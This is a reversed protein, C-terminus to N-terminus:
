ADRILPLGVSTWRSGLDGIVIHPYLEGSASVTSGDPQMMQANARAADGLTLDLPQLLRLGSPGIVQDALERVVFGDILRRRLSATPARRGRTLVRAAVAVPARHVLSLRLFVETVLYAVGGPKLVRGIEAAARRIGDPGGFHEISSLSIVADFSEDGFTLERADMDRVELRQAPYPYPACAGPDELFGRVAEREGFEGRGYIDVAVVRGCRNALWFLIPERGAGVDLVAADERLVGAEQLFAATMAYEWAKRHPREASLDPAVESMLPALAPDAFDPLDCAKAYNRTLRM